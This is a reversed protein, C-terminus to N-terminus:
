YDELVPLTLEYLNLKALTIGDFSHITWSFSLVFFKLAIKIAATLNGSFLSLKFPITFKLEGNRASPKSEGNKYLWRFTQGITPSITAAILNLSAGLCFGVLPSPTCGELSFGAGLSTALVTSWGFYTESDAPPLTCAYPLPSTIPSSGLRQGASTYFVGAPTAGLPSLGAVTPSYINSFYTVSSGSPSSAFTSDDSLWRFETSATIPEYALQAGLWAAGVGQANLADQLRTSEEQTSMESLTGGAAVCEKSAADFTKAESYVKICDETEGLCGYEKGPAPAFTLNVKIGVGAGVTFKFTVVVPVPGINFMFKYGLAYGLGIRKDIPTRTFESTPSPSLANLSAAIGAWNPTISFTLTRSQGTNGEGFVGGLKSLDLASFSAMQGRFKIAATPYPAGNEPPTREITATMDLAPRGGEGDSRGGNNSTNSCYVDSSDNNPCTEQSGNDQTGSMSSDGSKKENSFDTFTRASAPIDASVREVPTIAPKFRDAEIIVPQRATRCGRYKFPVSNPSHMGENELEVSWVKRFPGTEHASNTSIGQQRKGADVALDYTAILSYSGAPGSQVEELWRMESRYWYPGKGWVPVYADRRLLGDTANICYFLDFARSKGPIYYSSNPDAILKQKSDANIPVAVSQTVMDDAGEFEGDVKGDTLLASGM